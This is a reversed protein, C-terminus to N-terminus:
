NHALITLKVLVIEVGRTAAFCLLLNGSGEVLFCSTNNKQAITHM